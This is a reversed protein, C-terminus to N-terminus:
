SEMFKAKIALRTPFPMKAGVLFRTGEPGTGIHIFGQKKLLHMAVESGPGCRGMMNKINVAQLAELFMLKGLGKDRFSPDIAAMWFEMFASDGRFLAFGLPRTKDHVQNFYTYASLKDTNGGDLSIRGATIGALLGNFFLNGADPAALRADFAGDVAGQIILKKIFEFHKPTTKKLM